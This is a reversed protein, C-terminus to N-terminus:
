FLLYPWYIYLDPWYDVNIRFTWEPRKHVIGALKNVFSAM